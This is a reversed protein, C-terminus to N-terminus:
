YDKEGHVSLRTPFLCVNILYDFACMYVCMIIVFFHLKDQSYLKPQRMSVPAGSLSCSLIANERHSSAPLPTLSAPPISVRTSSICSCELCLSCCAYLHARWSYSGRLAPPFATHGATLGHLFLPSLHARPSLDPSLDRSRSSAQFADLHPLFGSRKM